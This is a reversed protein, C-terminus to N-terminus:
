PAAGDDAAAAKAARLQEIERMATGCVPGFAPATAAARVRRFRKDGAVVFGGLAMMLAGFVALPLWRGLPKM